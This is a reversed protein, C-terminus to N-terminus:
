ILLNVMNAFANTLKFTEQIWRALNGKNFFRLMKLLRLARILQYSEPVYATRTLTALDYDPVSITYELFQYPFCAILDIIFWSKLYNIAITRVQTEVVGHKEYATFFCLFMNIVFCIDIISEFIMMGIETKEYFAVWLPIIFGTYFLWVAIVINWRLLWKNDPLIM